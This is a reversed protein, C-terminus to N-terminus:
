NIADEIYQPFRFEEQSNFISLACDTKNKTMYEVLDADTEHLTGFVQNLLARSNVKLLQPELTKYVVDDDFHISIRPLNLYDKYKRKLQEINGDNDTVVRVTLDLQIGIELFRKFALAQVAIVDVGDELPMRGYKCLYAKQVVLEDSPGEVLIAKRCLILRLTDHGPLKMFYDKTEPTLNTLRMSADHRFLIVNEIGLKNLVFSSHTTLLIQKGTGKEQIKRVLRSMNSYSLHNEPEEILLIQADISAEMALKMKVSSQEGKGAFSFPIDDLHPALGSEWSMRSSTDMSITLDKETVDGKKSALHQNISKVNADDLFTDKLRRFALSLDVKQKVDLVDDIIKLIYGYASNGARLLSTDILTTSLPVGRATVSNGSFSLWQVSYYEIPITRIEDGRSLFEKYEQTYSEDFEITLVLGPCDERRSNNTGKLAALEPQEALYVEISLTPPTTTKGDRLDQIFSAISSKNFLHPSLENQIARGNLQGSVVLNIAELLTSKGSENDGVIVNLGSNLYLETNKLSKYNKVIVKTIRMANFITLQNNLVFVEL